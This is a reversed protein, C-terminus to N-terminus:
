LLQIRVEDGTRARLRGGVANDPIATFVPTEILEQDRFSRAVEPRDFYSEYMSGSVNKGNAIDTVDALHPVLTSDTVLSLTTSPPILPKNEEIYRNLSDSLLLNHIVRVQEVSLM